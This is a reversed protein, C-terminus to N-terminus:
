AAAPQAPQPAGPARTHTADTIPRAAGDRMARKLAAATAQAAEQVDVLARLSPQPQLLHWRRVHPWTLLYGVREGRMLKFAIEGGGASYARVAASEIVSFPLNLSMPLAIGHRIVIRHTTVTYVTARAALWAIGVLVALATCALAFPARSHLVAAIFTQGSSMLHVVNAALLLAFYVAMKRVHLVHRAHLRWSPSGQWVLQEGAPLAEPLGHPALPDFDHESM